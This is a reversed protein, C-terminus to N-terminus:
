PKEGGKKDHFSTLKTDRDGKVSLGSLFPPNTACVISIREFLYNLLSFLVYVSQNTQKCAKNIRSTHHLFGCQYGYNDVTPPRSKKIIVEISLTSYLYYIEHSGSRRCATM